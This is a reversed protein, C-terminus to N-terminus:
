KAKTKRIERRFQTPSVGVNAKFVRNFSNISSFGVDFSISTVSKDTNKLFTKAERVRFGNVLETFSKKFHANILRSLHQETIGLRDSMTARNLSLDRYLKEEQLFAQVKQVIKNNRKETSESETSLKETGYDFIRFIYTPVLYVFVVGLMTKLFQADDSSIKEMVLTLDVLLVCLNFMILLVILWYRHRWRLERKGVVPTRRLILILLGFLVAAGIVRYLVVVDQSPICLEQQMCVQEQTIALYLFPGGGILPLALIAWYFLPPPRRLIFQLILLFSLEPWIHDNFLLATHAHQTPVDPLQHIIPLLFAATLSIFFLVPLFISPVHRTYLMLYGIVFLCPGIAALQVVETVGVVIPEM